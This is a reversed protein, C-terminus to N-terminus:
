QGQAECPIVSNQVSSSFVDLCVVWVFFCFGCCVFFVFIWCVLLAVTAEEELKELSGNLEQKRPLVASSVLKRFVSVRWPQLQLHKPASM